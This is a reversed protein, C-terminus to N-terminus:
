RLLLTWCLFRMPAPVSGHARITAVAREQSMGAVEDADLVASGSAVSGAADPAGAADGAVVGVNIGTSTRGGEDSASAGDKGAGGGHRVDFKSDGGVAAVAGGGSADM